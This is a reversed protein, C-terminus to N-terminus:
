FRQQGPDKRQPPRPPSHVSNDAVDAQPFRLAGGGGSGVAAASSPETVAPKDKAWSAARRSFSSPLDVEGLWEDYSSNLAALLETPDDMGGKFLEMVHRGLRERAPHGAVIGAQRCYEDLVKALVSLQGSDASGNFIMHKEWPQPSLAIPEKL